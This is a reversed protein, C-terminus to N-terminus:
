QSALSSVYDTLVSFLKETEEVLLMHGAGEIEVLKSGSIERQAKRSSGIGVVEDETGHVLLVPVQLKSVNKSISNGDLARRQLMAGAHIQSQYQERLLKKAFASVFMLHKDRYKKSFYKPISEEIQEDTSKESILVEHNLFEPYLSSSIVILKKVRDPFDLAAQVSIIGGLSFGILIGEDCQVEKWLSVIDEAMEKLTFPDHARTKGAGRNDFLLVRYGLPILRRSYNRFDELTRTIGCVFTLVPGTEGLLEYYIEAGKTQLYPM